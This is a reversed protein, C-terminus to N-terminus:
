ILLRSIILICTSELLVFQSEFVMFLMPPELDTFSNTWSCVTFYRPWVACIDLKAKTKATQRYLLPLKCFHLSSSRSMCASEARLCRDM